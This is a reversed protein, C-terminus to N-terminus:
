NTEQKEIERLKRQIACDVYARLYRVWWVIAAATITLLAAFQSIWIMTTGPRITASYIIAMLVFVLVFSAVIAAILTKTPKDMVKREKKDRSDYKGTELFVERTQL